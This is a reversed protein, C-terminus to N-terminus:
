SILKGNPLQQGGCRSSYADFYELKKRGEQESDDIRSEVSKNKEPFNLNLIISLLMTVTFGTDM